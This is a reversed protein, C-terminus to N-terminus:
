TKILSEFYSWSHAIRSGYWSFYTGDVLLVKSAPLAEQLKSKHIETFPFPESSLFIFDPKLEKLQQLDSIEPYRIQSSFLNVLGIETLISSIFTDGGITMWPKQWIMYVVTKEEFFPLRTKQKKIKSILSSAQRAKLLIEGVASIMDLSDNLNQIDFVKVEFNDSIEDVQSKENEERVFIVLDPQLAKIKSIGLTKTGGVSPVSKITDPYICFKTRGILFEPNLEFVLESISPVCSIIRM